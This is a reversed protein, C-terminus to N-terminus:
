PPATLADVETWAFGYPLRFLRHGGTAPARGAM